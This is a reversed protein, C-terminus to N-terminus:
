NFILDIWKDLSTKVIPILTPRNEIQKAHDIVTSIGDIQIEKENPYSLGLVNRSQELIYRDSIYYSAQKKLEENKVKLSDLELKKEVLIKRRQEGKQNTDAIQYTLLTFLLLLSFFLLISQLNKHAKSYIFGVSRITKKILYNIRPNRM